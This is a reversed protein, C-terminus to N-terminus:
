KQKKQKHPKLQHLQHDIFKSLEEKQTTSCHTSITQFFVYTVSDITTKNEQIQQLIVTNPQNDNLSRFLQKHLQIDTQMLSRKLTHHEKELQDIIEKQQGTFNLRTTITEPRPHHPKNYWFFLLVAVNCFFLAISLRKYFTLSKM